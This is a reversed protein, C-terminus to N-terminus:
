IKMNRLNMEDNNHNLLCISRYPGTSYIIPRIRFIFIFPSACCYKYFQLKIISLYWLIIFYKDSRGHKGFLSHEGHPELMDLNAWRDLVVSRIWDMGLYFAAAGLGAVVGVFLGLGVWRSVTRLEFLRTFATLDSLTPLRPLPPPM